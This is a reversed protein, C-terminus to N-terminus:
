GTWRAPRIALGTLALLSIILFPWDGWMGFPTMGNRPTIKGDLAGSFFKPLQAQVRGTPSIIATVGTNTARIDPKEEERSQMAAMQLSQPLATSHGFWSYDSINTLFTAGEVVGKRVDRSFSEEYCITMGDRLGDVHLTSSGDGPTFTGLGPLFHHVLPDLLYPFPIYEGFPM